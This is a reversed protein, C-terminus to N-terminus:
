TKGFTYSSNKKKKWNMRNRIKLKCKDLIINRIVTAVARQWLGLKRFM